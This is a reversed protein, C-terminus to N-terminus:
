VVFVRYGGQELSACRLRVLQPDDGVVLIRQIM